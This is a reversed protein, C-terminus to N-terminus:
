LNTVIIEVIYGNVARITQVDVNYSDCMWKIIATDLEYLRSGTYLKCTSPYIRLMTRGKWAHVSLINVMGDTSWLVDNKTLENYPKFGGFALMIPEDEPPTNITCFHDKPPVHEDIYPNYEELSHESPWSVSIEEIEDEESEYDSM